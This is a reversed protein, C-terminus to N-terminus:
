GAPNVEGGPGREVRPSPSCRPLQEIVQRQFAIVSPLDDLPSWHYGLLENSLRISPQEGDLMCLFIMDLHGRVDPACQVVLPRVARVRLGTEELFEREVAQAPDEARNIWGGPLGWPYESHFVHEVLLVREGSADLLVGVVGATFRPQVLRVGRQLMGSLWPYRRFLRAMRGFWRSGDRRVVGTDSAM